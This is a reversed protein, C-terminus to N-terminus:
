RPHYISVIMRIWLGYTLLIRRLHHTTRLRCRATWAWGGRLRSCCGAARAGARRAHRSWNGTLHTWSWTRGHRWSFWRFHRCGAVVLRHRWLRCRFSIGLPRRSGWHRCWRRWLSDGATLFEAIFYSINYLELITIYKEHASGLKEVFPLNIKIQFLETINKRKNLFITVYDNKSSFSIIQQLKIIRKIKAFNMYGNGTCVINCHQDTSSLAIVETKNDENM